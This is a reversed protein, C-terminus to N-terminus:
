SVSTLYSIVLGHTEQIEFQVSCQYRLSLSTIVPLKGLDGSLQLDFPPFM